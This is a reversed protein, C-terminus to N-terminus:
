GGRADLKAASANARCRPHWSKGSRFHFDGKTLREDDSAVGKIQLGVHAQNFSFRCVGSCDDESVELSLRYACDGAGVFEDAEVAGAGDGDGDEAIVASDAASARNAHYGKWGFEGCVCPM